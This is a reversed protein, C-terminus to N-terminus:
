ILTMAVPRLGFEGLHLLVAVPQAGDLTATAHSTM